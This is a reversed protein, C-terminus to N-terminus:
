RADRVRIGQIVREATSQPVEGVLTVLYAGSPATLRRSVAVTPGVRSVGEEVSGGEVAEVFVTFAALGDSFGQAAVPARDGASRWDQDVSRFGAPLWDAEVLLQQVPHSSPVENLAKERMVEPVDFDQLTLGPALELSVFEVRELAVGSGDVVESKLLLRSENDLWLRYGYRHTDLPAVRMRTANRGAVRGDGDVLINYQEPVDSALRDSISLPHVQNQTIRTLTRDPHLCLVEDGRQLVEVMRGDLHTLRQYERGDIVAHSLEMTSVEAGFQYLFRGTYNLSRNAQAMAQLQSHAPSDEALALLPSSLILFLSLVRLMM